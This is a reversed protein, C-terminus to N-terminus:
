IHSLTSLPSQDVGATAYAPLSPEVSLDERGAPTQKHAADLLLSRISDLSDIRREGALSAARAPMHVPLRALALGDEPTGRTRKGAVGVYVRSLVDGCSMRHSRPSAVPSGPRHVAFRLM